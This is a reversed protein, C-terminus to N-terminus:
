VWLRKMLEKTYEALKEPEPTIEANAMVTAAAKLCVQLHIDDTVTPKAIWEPKTEFSVHEEKLPADEKKAMTIQNGFENTTYHITVNDGKELKTTGFANYWEEGIKIGYKDKDTKTKGRSVFDIKGKIEAMVEDGQTTEKWNCVM